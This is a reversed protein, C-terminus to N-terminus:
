FHPSFTFNLDFSHTEGFQCGIIQYRLNSFFTSLDVISKHKSSLKSYAYSKQKPAYVRDLSSAPVTPHRNVQSNDAPPRNIQNDGRHTQPLPIAAKHIAAKRSIHETVFNHKDLCTKQFSSCEGYATRIPGWLQRM